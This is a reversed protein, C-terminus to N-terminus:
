NRPGILPTVFINTSAECRGFAEAVASPLGEDVAYSIVREGFTLGFQIHYKGKQITEFLKHAGRMYLGRYNLSAGQQLPGGLQHTSEPYPLLNELKAQTPTLQPSKGDQRRILAFEAHVVGPGVRPIRTLGAGLAVINLAVGEFLSGDHGTVRIACYTSNSAPHTETFTYQVDQLTIEDIQRPV